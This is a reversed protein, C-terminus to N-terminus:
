SAQVRIRRTWDSSGGKCLAKDWAIFSRGVSACKPDEGMAALRECLSPLLRCRDAYSVFATCWARPNVELRGYFIEPDMEAPRITMAELTPGIISRTKPGAFGDGCFTLLAERLPRHFENTMGRMLLIAGPRAPYTPGIEIRGRLSDFLQNVEAMPRGQLEMLRKQISALQQRERSDLYLGARHDWDTQAVAVHGELLSLGKPPAQRPVALFIRGAAESDFTNVRMPLSM